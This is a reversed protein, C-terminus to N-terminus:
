VRWTYVWLYMNNQELYNQYTQWQKITKIPVQLAVFDNDGLDCRHLDTKLSSSLYIM